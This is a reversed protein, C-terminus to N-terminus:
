NKKCNSNTEKINEVNCAAKIIEKQAQGVLEKVDLFSVVTQKKVGERYFEIKMNQQNVKRTAKYVDLVNTVREGNASIIIDLKKLKGANPSDPLVEDVQVAGKLDKVIAEVQSGSLNVLSIRGDKPTETCEFYVEFLPYTYTENSSVTSAGGYSMGYAPGYGGYRGYYPSAGYYYSPGTTSTQTIEKSYTKDKVLMIHTTPQKMEQCLEIARFKAYLEATEKKTEANGQFEAVRLNSDIIKDSYGQQDQKTQYPTPATSCAVASLITLTLMLRM